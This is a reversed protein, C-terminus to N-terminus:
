VGRLPSYSPGHSGPLTLLMAKRRANGDLKRKILSVKMAVQQRLDKKTKRRRGFCLLSFMAGVRTRKTGLPTGVPPSRQHKSFVRQSFDNNKEDDNGGTQPAIQMRVSRVLGNGGPVGGDPGADPHTQRQAKGPVDTEIEASFLRLKKQGAIQEFFGQRHIVQEDHHGNETGERDLVFHLM